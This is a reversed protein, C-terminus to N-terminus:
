QRRSTVEALLPARRRLHDKFDRSIKLAGMENVHSSDGFYLDPLFDLNPDAAIAPYTRGLDQVYERYESEFQPSLERHSSENMPMARFVVKSGADLALEIGERLYSDLLPSADFGELTAEFSIGSHSPARGLLYHGRGQEIQHLAARNADRRGILRSSVLEARYYPPFNARYLMWNLMVRLRGADKLLPDRLDHSRALIARFDAFNHARYKVSLKWFKSKMNRLLHYPAFSFVVWEPAAHAALYDRLLHYSDIPSSGLLALSRTQPGIEDPIIAAQARSDGLILIRANGQSSNKAADLQYTWLPYARDAYNMPQTGIYIAAVVLGLLVLTGLWRLYQRASQDDM